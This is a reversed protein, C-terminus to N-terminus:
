SGDPRERGYRRVLAAGIAALRDRVGPPGTVELWEAMGALEVALAYESHGRIVV